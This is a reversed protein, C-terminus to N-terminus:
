EDVNLLDYLLHSEFGKSLGFRLLKGKLDYQNKFRVTKRHSAILSNLVDMYTDDDIIDLSKRIIEEPIKKMRLATVLKIKGWKNYRFKDKVFATAFREEDIFKETILISLIRDTDKEDVGWTTLKRRIDYLCMERGACISMAKKLAADYLEKEAMTGAKLSETKVM